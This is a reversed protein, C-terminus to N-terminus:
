LYQLESHYKEYMAELKLMQFQQKVHQEIEDFTNCESLTKFQTDRLLFYQDDLKKLQEKIQEKTMNNIKEQLLDQIKHKIYRKDTM